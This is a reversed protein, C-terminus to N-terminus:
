AGEARRSRDIARAKRRLRRVVLPLWASLLILAGLVLIVIASSDFTEPM